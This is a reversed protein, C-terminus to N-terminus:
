RSTVSMEQYLPQQSLHGGNAIAVTAVILWLVVMFIVSFILFPMGTIPPAFVFLTSFIYSAHMLTALLLSETRDYIWVMLVRYATLNAFSTLFYLSFFFAPSLDETSARGVWVMQLLHWMGWLVGMILGTALISYRQRFQRIVFGTWGLEEALGGILGIVIGSLILGVKDVATFVSPLFVPSTLSLTFLIVTMLFPATLLAIAYWRAGVRWKVLRSFFDRFGTRGYVLGTMLLGAFPPGALMATVALQFLPDTQWDTGSFFNSGGLLLFGGWSIVFVLAYYTVLVHRKTFDQITSM